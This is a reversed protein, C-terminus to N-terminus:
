MVTEKIICWKTRLAQESNHSSNEVQIKLTVSNQNLQLVRFWVYNGQLKLCCKRGFRGSLGTTTILTFVRLIMTYVTTGRLMHAHFKISHTSGL